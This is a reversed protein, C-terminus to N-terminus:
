EIKDDKEVGLLKRAEYIARLLPMQRYPRMVTGKRVQALNMNSFFDRYPVNGIVMKDTDERRVLSPNNIIDEVAAIDGSNTRFYKGYYADFVRWKGNLKVFSIAYKSKHIKDYPKEYFAPVGGYACLSTFVDQFQEPVAYGRVITYLIHDDCVPMGSPVDKLNERTWKLIALVKEEDTRCGATIEKVLREYEYHRALFQTWKVYLPMRIKRYHGNVGVQISSPFNAVLIAILLIALALITRGFRRSSHEDRNAGSDTFLKHGMKHKM